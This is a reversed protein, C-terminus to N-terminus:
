LRTVLRARTSVSPWMSHISPLMPLRRVIFYGDTYMTPGLADPSTSETAYAPGPWCWSAPALIIWAAGSVVDLITDFDIEFSPPMVVYRPRTWTSSPARPHLLWTWHSANIRSSSESLRVRGYM